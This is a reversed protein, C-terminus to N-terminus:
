EAHTQGQPNLEPTAAKIVNDAQAPADEQADEQAAAEVINDAQAPAPADVPEQASEAFINNVLHIKSDLNVMRTVTEIVMNVKDRQSLKDDAVIVRLDDQTYYKDNRLENLVDQKLRLIENSM